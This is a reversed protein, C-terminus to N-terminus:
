QQRQQHQQHQQHLRQCEYPSPLSHLENQAGISFAIVFFSLYSCKGRQGGVQGTSFKGYQATKPLQM